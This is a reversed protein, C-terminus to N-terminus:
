LRESRKYSDAASSLCSPIESPPSFGYNEFLSQNGALRSYIAEYQLAINRWDLEEARTRAEIAMTRRVEPNTALQIIAEVFQNPDNNEVLIGDKGSTYTTISPILTSLVPLGCAMGELLSNNATAKTLPLFLVDSQQYIRRLTDDSVSNYVRVNPLDEIGTARSSVVHFEISKVSSLQKAVKRVVKYDRYNYGVTVCRFTGDDRLFQEPCFFGTDIGHLTLHVKEPETLAQFFEAQDPSVVTICDLAAVLDRRIVKSLVDPPQHYTVVIRPRGRRSRKFFQPLFQASHEGDLHHIIHTKRPPLYLPVTRIETTLDSLNYWPMGNRQVRHRLWNRVMMSQVPFDNDNESVLQEQVDYREKDIFKFLQNMGSYQGWHPYRTRILRIRIADPRARDSRTITEPKERDLLDRAAPKERDPLDQATPSLASQTRASAIRGTVYALPSILAGILELAVLHRPTGGPSYLRKMLRQFLWNRVVVKLIDLRNVTRNRFCSLLYIGYSRGDNYLWRRLSKDDRDHTLWVLADPEYKLTHGLALLRHFMEIDGVAEDVSKASLGPDFPGVASFLKRRFAMNASSGFHRPWLLESSALKERRLVLARLGLGLSFDLEYKFQASTELEMSAVYGTVAMVEEDAFATALTKLWHRDPCANEETFAIIDYQAVAIGRNRAVNLGPREERICRIPMRSVLQAVDKNTPANDVVIVEFIPYEEALLAELCLRLQDPRGHACVVVSIPPMPASGIREPELHQKLLAHALPWCLDRAIEERLQETPVISQWPPSKPWIWGILQGHYRVLVHLTDYRDTGWVPQLEESLDLEVVKTPM